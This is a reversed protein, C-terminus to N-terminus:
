NFRMQIKRHKGSSSTSSPIAQGPIKGVDFTYRLWTISANFLTTQKKQKEVFTSVIEKESRQLSEERWSM